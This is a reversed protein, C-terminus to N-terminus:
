GKHLFLQSPHIFIRSSCHYCSHQHKHCVFLVVSMLHHIDVLFPEVFRQNVQIFQGILFATSEGQCAIKSFVEHMCGIVIRRFRNPLNLVRDTIAAECPSFYVSAFSQVVRPVPCSELATSEVM